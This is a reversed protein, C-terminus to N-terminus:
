TQVHFLGKAQQIIYIIVPLMVAWIISLFVLAELYGVGFTVAGLREGMAYSFPFGIAGALVSATRSKALFALSLPLTSVFALWLLMLWFPIPWGASSFNFVGLMTLLADVGIGLTAALMLQSLTVAHANLLAILYALIVPVTLWLWQNGGAVCGLWFFDFLVFNLWKSRMFKNM